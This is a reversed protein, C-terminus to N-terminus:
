RPTKVNAMIASKIEAHAEKKLDMQGLFQDLIMEPNYVADGLGYGRMRVGANAIRELMASDLAVGESRAIISGIEHISRQYAGWAYNPTVGTAKGAVKRAAMEVTSEEIACGYGVYSGTSQSKTAGHLEEHVMTQLHDYMVDRDTSM